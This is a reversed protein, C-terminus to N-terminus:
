GNNGNTFNTAVVRSSSTSLPSNIVCYKHIYQPLILQESIGHYFSTVDGCNIKTGFRHVAEKLYMGLHYFNDHQHRYANGIASYIRENTRYTKSFEYQLSTYNCYIMLSLIHHISWNRNTFTERHYETCFHIDAKTYENNFQDMCLTAICNTTMEEKFTSYKSHVNTVTEGWNKTPSLPDFFSTTDWERDQYSKTKYRNLRHFDNKNKQIYEFQSGFHYMKNSQDHCLQNYKKNMDASLYHINLLQYEANKHGLIQAIAAGSKVNVSFTNPNLENSEINMRHLLLRDKQSLRFGIDFTHSYFCHIKDLIQVKVTDYTGYIPYITRIFKDNNRNRYNRRFIKCNKINCVCCLTNYICEFQDDNNYNNLLYLFDNLLLKIDIKDINFSDSEGYSGMVSKIRQIICETHHGRKQEHVNM